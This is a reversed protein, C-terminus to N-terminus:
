KRYPPAEQSLDVKAPFGRLSEVSFPYYIIGHWRRLNLFVSSERCYYPRNGEAFPYFGISWGCARTGNRGQGGALKAFTLVLMM